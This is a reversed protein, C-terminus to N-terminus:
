KPLALTALRLFEIIQFSLPQIKGRERGGNDDFWAKWLLLCVIDDVCSPM